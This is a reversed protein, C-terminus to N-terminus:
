QTNPQFASVQTGSSHLCMKATRLLSDGSDQFGTVPLAPPTQAACYLGHTRSLSTRGSIRSSCRNMSLETADGLKAGTYKGLHHRFTTHATKKRVEAATISTPSHCPPSPPSTVSPHFTRARLPHTNEHSVPDIHAADKNTDNPLKCLSTTQEATRDKGSAPSDANQVGATLVEGEGERKEM